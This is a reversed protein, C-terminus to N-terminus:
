QGSILHVSHCFTRHGGVARHIQDVFGEGGFVGGGVCLGHAFRKVFLCIADGNM